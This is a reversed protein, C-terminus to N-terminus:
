EGSQTRWMQAYRGGLALLEEHTGQEVICGQDIVVILDSDRVTSLRHAIVFSTRGRTLELMAARITRETLTDVSSTAEDLILIPADAVFARAITLLQREGQSLAAGGGELVTDYGQPLRQIFGDADAAIAARRAAERAQEPTEFSRGYCINETVTASILSPDQLVSGFARRLDAMRYERLDHGDLLIRGEDVDYFRTLLNILTTKGSGTAGVIAVRTGAPVELSVDRLVPHGPEYGFSVHEISIDGRPHECALADAADPPEPTEDMVEFVREAGALASQLLNYISAIDVFPRIFQRSYLLFSSVLGVGILGQSAMLGSVVAVNVFSLNSIVNTFPMLLGSWVLAKVATERYQGNAAEFTDIMAQERGFAKVLALGSVSEEVHGNLQGLVTQQRLFLPRTRATIFRTFGLILAVGLLAVLTLPVSLSLMVVLAGGISFVYVMIQVLSDTISTSINQVDNTIRSMLDGHQHRDFFALPLQEMSEFLRLRIGCVTRQGVSATIFGQLFHSLYGGLYVAVLVVILTVIPERVEIADIIRGILLPSVVPVLSAGASLAFIGLLASRHGRTFGWLRAVTGRTDKPRVKAGFRAAKGDPKGNLHLPVGTDPAPRGAAERPTGTDPTNRTSM